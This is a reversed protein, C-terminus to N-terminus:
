VCTKTNQLARNIKASEFVGFLKSFLQRDWFLNLTIKLRHKYFVYPAYSVYSVYSYIRGVVDHGLSVVSRWTEIHLSVAAYYM